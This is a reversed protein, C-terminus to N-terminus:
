ANVGDHKGAIAFFRSGDSCFLLPLSIQLLARARLLFAFPEFSKM